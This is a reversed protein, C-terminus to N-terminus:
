TGASAKFDVDTFLADLKASVVGTTKTMNNARVSYVVTKTDTLSNPTSGTFTLAFDTTDASLSLTNPVLITLQTDSNQSAAHATPVSGATSMAWATLVVSLIRVIKM